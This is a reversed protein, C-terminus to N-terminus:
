ARRAGEARLYKRLKMSFHVLMGFTIIVCSYLPFRDAPNKVVAFTSFLPTNPAANQPGWSAQFFTYGQHRLPQNMSINVKQEIGDEIKVIDSEFAKAMATRPHLDRRFDELKVTFPVDWQRRRLDVAWVASGSTFAAPTQQMGWLLMDFGSQSQKDRATAYVGAVNQEFERELPISKLYFGDIVKEKVEFMPGKPSPTANASFGSLELDFPLENHRFVASKGEEISEFYSEPIVYEIRSGDPQPKSVAVEWEHYSKFSESQEGEYLTMHGDISYAYTVYGGALLLLIGSHIILVGIQHWGKRMRLIGGLFINIFLLALLLRVGPLPVPVSGWNFFNVWHILYLSNFYKQQTLYLGNQIQDLTGLYTLLLLFIFVAAALGLSSLLQVIRRPWAVALTSATM